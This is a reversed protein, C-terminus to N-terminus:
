KGATRGTRETKSQGDSNLDYYFLYQQMIGSYGRYREIPFGDPYHGDLIQRIHTDIPFADVHHLGFLCICDAVKKGIGYQKMLLAHATGYDAKRLDDLSFEGSGVAEALSALYKDRYGLGLEALDKLGASSLTRADPFAAYRGKEWEKKEGFRECLAEVSKRIRPINNNQSIVFCVLMEWLDQRLIRIGNGYRIAATLYEDSEDALAKIQGYDTVADLYSDWVENYEEKTCSFTFEEGKQTIEVMRGMAPVDYTNDDLRIWRFTQGSGYVQNLDLDRITKKFM